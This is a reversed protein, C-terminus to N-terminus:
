GSFTIWDGCSRLPMASKDFFRHGSEWKRANKRSQLKGNYIRGYKFKSQFAKSESHTLVGKKRKRREKEGESSVQKQEGETNGV